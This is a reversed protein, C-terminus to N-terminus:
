VHPPAPIEPPPPLDIDPLTRGTRALERRLQGVLGELLEIVERHWLRDLDIYGELAWIRYDRSRNTEEAMKKIEARLTDKDAVLQEAHATDLAPKRRDQIWQHALATAAVVCSVITTAGLILEAGTM